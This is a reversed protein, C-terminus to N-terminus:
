GAAPHARRAPDRVPVSAVDIYNDGGTSPHLDIRYMGVGVCDRYSAPARARRPRRHSLDQEVVRTSPASAAAVRPHLAGHRPRRDTGTVDGRLRLGPFGTGGDARPAETQLWYFVSCRCSPPRTSTRADADPCTSSRAEFYDIMPWNVLCIDSDYAGPVFNRRAAIRRFTWLNATAPTRRAPRRDVLSRITTRTRRSAARRRDRAHAPAAGHLRAAARGLLEPQYARWYDYDDPKDITHDGDVHDIAFCISVAQM